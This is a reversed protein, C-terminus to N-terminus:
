GNGKKEKEGIPNIEKVEGLFFSFFVHHTIPKSRPILAYGEGKKM